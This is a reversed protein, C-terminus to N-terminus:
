RKTPLGQDLNRLVTIGNLVPMNDKTTENVNLNM